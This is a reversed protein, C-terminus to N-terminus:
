EDWCVKMSTPVPSVSSWDESLYLPLGSYEATRIKKLEGQPGPTRRLNMKRFVARLMETLAIQYTDRGLLCHSGSGPWLYSEIPRRPNVENPSPLDSTHASEPTQVTDAHHLELASSCAHSLGVLNVLIRDGARVSLRAGDDEVVTEAACAERTATVGTLRVAELAYGLLEANTEESPTGRALKQVSAM